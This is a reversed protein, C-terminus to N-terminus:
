RPPSTEPRAPPCPGAGDPATTVVIYMECGLDPLYKTMGELGKILRADCIGQALIQEMQEHTFPKIFYTGFERIRFGHAELAACLRMKDYRTQRQFRVEALSRDDVREILGMELALLRHFSFINPVNVHVVTDKGCLARLTALFVDPDPVLHLVSSAIITDYNDGALEKRQDELYGPVLRVRRNDQLLEQAHKVFQQSPEVITYREYHDYHLFLPELGCGIELLSRGPYKGLFELVQKRRIAVLTKEFSKRQYQETYKAAYAHANMM